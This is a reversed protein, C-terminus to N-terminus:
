FFKHFGKFLRSYDQMIFDQFFGPFVKFVCQCVKPFSHFLRPFVRPFGLHFRSFPKFIKPFGVFLRPFYGLFGHSFLPFIM